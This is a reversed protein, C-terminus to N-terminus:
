EDGIDLKGIRIRQEAVEEKTLNNFRDIPFEGLNENDEDDVVRVHIISDKDCSISIRVPSGKPKPKLQIESDGIKSIYEVEASEGQTVSVSISKQNDIVTYFIEEAQAPM